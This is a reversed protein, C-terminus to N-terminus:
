YKRVVGGRARADLCDCVAEWNFFIRRKLKIHPLVGEKCRLEVWRTSLNLRAAVEKKTILERCGGRKTNAMSVPFGEKQKVGPDKAIEKPTLVFRIELNANASNWSEFVKLFSGAFEDVSLSSGLSPFSIGNENQNIKIVSM